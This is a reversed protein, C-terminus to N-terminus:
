THCIAIPLPMLHLLATHRARRVSGPTLRSELVEDDDFLLILLLDILLSSSLLYIIM